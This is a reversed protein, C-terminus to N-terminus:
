QHPQYTDEDCCICNESDHDDVDYDVTSTEEVIKRFYQLKKLKKWNPGFHNQLLKTVDDIKSQSISIDNLLLSPSGSLSQRAKCSPAFTSDFVRYNSEAKIRATTMGPCREIDFIKTQTIKFPLSAATKFRESTYNKWDYIKWDRGLECTTAHKEILNKYDNPTLMEEESRIDKEIRGFVRDSPLFSHGTVPFIIQESM